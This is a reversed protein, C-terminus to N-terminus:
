CQISDNSVVPPAHTIANTVMIFSQTVMFFDAQARQSLGDKKLAAYTPLIAHLLGQASQDEDHSWKWGYKQLKNKLENWSPLEDTQQKLEDIILTHFQQNNNYDDTVRTTIDNDLAKLNGYLLQKGKEAAGLTVLEAHSGKKDYTHGNKVNISCEDTIDVWGISVTENTGIKISSVLHWSQDLSFIVPTREYIFQM